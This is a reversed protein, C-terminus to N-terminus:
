YNFTIKSAAKYQFRKRVITDENEKTESLENKIKNTKMEQFFIRKVSKLNQQNKELKLAKLAEVQKIGQNKLQKNTM